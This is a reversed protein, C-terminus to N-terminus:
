AKNYIKSSGFDCLAIRGNKKMLFNDPKIDRHIIGKSHIYFISRAMQYCATKFTLDDFYDETKIFDMLSWDYLEM